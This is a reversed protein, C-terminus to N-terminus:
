KVYIRDEEITYKMGPVLQCIANMLEELTEGNIFKATLLAKDYEESDMYVSVGFKREISRFVELVPQSRFCIGGDKWATDEASNVTEVETTGDARDITFRQDPKLEVLKGDGTSVSVKGECLTTSSTRDEHYACVNFITGHVEVHMGATKVTFTRRRDATVEFLAEGSLHVERRRGFTEPYLLVSEANLTVKSGDPLVVERIEGKGTSYEAIQVNREDQSKQVYIVSAVPSIILAAIVAAYMLMKRVRLVHAAKESAEAERARAMVARFSEDTETLSVKSGDIEDWGKFEKLSM